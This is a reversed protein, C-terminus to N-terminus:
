EDGDEASALTDILVDIHDRLDRLSALTELVTVSTDAHLRYVALRYVALRYVAKRAAVLLEEHKTM